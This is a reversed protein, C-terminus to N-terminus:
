LGRWFASQAARVAARAREGRPAPVGRLAEEDGLDASDAVLVDITGDLCERLAALDYGGETVLALTGSAKAAVRLRRVVRMYGTASM